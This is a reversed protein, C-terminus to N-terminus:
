WRKAFSRRDDGGRGGGGGRNGGGEERPKAENVKIPRGDLQKGDLQAIAAQAEEATSMTIFAFGRSRQTARDMMLTCDQVTGFEAFTDQLSQETTQFSLNGVFLRM